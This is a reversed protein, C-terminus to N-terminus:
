RRRPGVLPAIVRVCVVGAAVLTLGAAWGLPSANVLAAIPASAQNLVLGIGAALAGAFAGDRLADRLAPRLSIARRQRETTATVDAVFAEDAPHEATAAFLRRLGPDLEDSM